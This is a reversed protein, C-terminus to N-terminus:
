FERQYPLYYPNKAYREAEEESLPSHALKTDCAALQIVVWQKIIDADVNVFNNSITILSDVIEKARWASRLNIQLIVDKSNVKGNKIGLVQLVPWRIGVSNKNGHIVKFGLDCGISITDPDTPLRKHYNKMESRKWRAMHDGSSNKRWTVRRAM